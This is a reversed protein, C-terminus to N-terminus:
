LNPNSEGNRDGGKIRYVELMADAAIKQIHLLAASLKMWDVEPQFLIKEARLSFGQVAILKQYIPDKIPHYPHAKKPSFGLFKKLAHTVSVLFNKPFYTYAFSPSGLVGHAKPRRSRDSSEHPHPRHTHPSHAM